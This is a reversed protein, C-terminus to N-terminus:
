HPLERSPKIHFLIVANQRKIDRLERNIARFSLGNLITGFSIVMLLGVFYSALLLDTSNNM